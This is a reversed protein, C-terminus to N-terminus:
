KKTRKNAKKVPEKPPEEKHEVPKQIIEVWDGGHIECETFIEGGTATNKYHRM